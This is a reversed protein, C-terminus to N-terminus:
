AGVGKECGQLDVQCGAALSMSSFRSKGLQSICNSSALSARAPHAKKKPGPNSFPADGDARAIESPEVRHVQM